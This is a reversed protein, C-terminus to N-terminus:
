YSFGKIRRSTKLASEAILPLNYYLKYCRQPSAFSQIVCFRTREFLKTKLNGVVQCIISCLATDLNRSDRTIKVNWILLRFPFLIFFMRSQRLGLSNKTKVCMPM